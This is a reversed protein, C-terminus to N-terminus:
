ALYRYAAREVDEVRELYEKEILTEIRQKLMTIDPAFRSSLQQIVETVLMQHSLEKRQRIMM